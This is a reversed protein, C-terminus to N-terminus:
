YIALWLIMFVNVLVIAKITLSQSSNCFYNVILPLLLIWISFPGKFNVKMTFCGEEANMISFPVYHIILGYVHIWRGM